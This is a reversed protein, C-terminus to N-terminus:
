KVEEAKARENIGMGVQLGVTYGVVGALVVLCALTAVALALTKRTAWRLSPIASAIEKALVEVRQAAMTAEWVGVAQWVHPHSLDFGHDLAWKMFKARRSETWGKTCSDFASPHPRLESPKSPM